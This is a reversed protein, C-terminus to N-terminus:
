RTHVWVTPLVRELDYTVVTGSKVRCPLCSDSEAAEIARDRGRWQGHRGLQVPVILERLVDGRYIRVDTTRRMDRHVPSEAEELCHFFNTNGLHHPLDLGIEHRKSEDVAAAINDRQNLLLLHDVPMSHAPWLSAREAPARVNWPM